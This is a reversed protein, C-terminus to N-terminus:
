GFMILFAMMLALLGVAETLAFGLMAYQFLDKGESPNRGYSIILAGFVTGVGVGAGILGATAFGAGCSKGISIIATLYEQQFPSM